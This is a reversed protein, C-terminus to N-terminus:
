DAPHLKHYQNIGPSKLQTKLGSPWRIEASEITSAGGLGFHLTAGHQSRHSDGTVLSRVSSGGQWSISITTGVVPRGPKEHLRFGIWNGSESITNRFVRLTQKPRPWTEYGTVALDVRGDGDLDQGVVCRSDDATSVGALHGIERFVENEGNLLLRNLDYGGYSQGMGQTRGLKAKFYLHAAPDEQSGAVYIDHLWFESEYDRVSQRSEMGNAVYVDPLGDNDFDAATCGWSWGTRAITPNSRSQRFGDPQALLLRNGHAMRPRMERLLRSDPRWLGLHELRDVTPSHMGIVLLDLWGDENFDALAHAMGFAEREVLWGATVDEFRGGGLNRYLDVGAFDSIVVLDPKGERDLDVLSASYTRRHRKPELGSGKTVDVFVGKGDNLLLYCPSGDNADHYPTPMSGSEYPQKYQGLFLDLDGDGDIDGCTLAMPLRLEPPATWVLRGPGAFSGKEDGTLLFLGDLKLCLFDAGGDTDFDAIM